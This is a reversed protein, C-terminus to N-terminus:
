MSYKAFEKLPNLLSGIMEGVTFSKKTFNLEDGM